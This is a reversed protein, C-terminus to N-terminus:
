PNPPCDFACPGFVVDVTSEGPFGFTVPDASAQAGDTSGACIGTPDCTCGAGCSSFAFAAIGYKSPPASVIEQCGGGQPQLYCAAPMPIM